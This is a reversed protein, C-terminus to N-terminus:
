GDTFRGYEKAVMIDFHYVVDSQDCGKALMAKAEEMVATYTEVTKCTRAAALQKASDDICEACARSSLAYVENYLRAMEAQEDLNEFFSVYAPAIIERVTRVINKVQQSSM